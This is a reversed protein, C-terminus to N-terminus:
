FIHQIIKMPSKTRATMRVGMMMVTTLFFWLEDLVGVSLGVLVVLVVMTFEVRGVLKIRGRL